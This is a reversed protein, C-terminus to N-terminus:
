KKGRGRSPKAKEYRKVLRRKVREQRQTGRVGLRQTFQFPDVREAGGQVRLGLTEEQEQGKADAADTADEFYELEEVSLPTPPTPRNLEPHENPAASGTVPRAVEKGLHWYTGRDPLRRPQGDRTTFVALDRSVIRKSEADCEPCPQQKSAERVPCLLEFVGHCDGCYYEYVPM